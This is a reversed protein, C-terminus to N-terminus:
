DATPVRDIHDIVIVDLTVKKGGVLKLGLQKEVATFISPGGEPDTPNAPGAPQSAKGFELRFEYTGSLGTKDVVRPSWQGFGTSLRVMMGLQSALDPM